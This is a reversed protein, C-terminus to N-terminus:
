HFHVRQIRGRHRQVLAGSPPGYRDGLVRRGPRWVTAQSWKTPEFAVTQFYARQEDSCDALEREITGQLEKQTLPRWDM